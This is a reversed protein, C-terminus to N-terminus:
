FFFTKTSWRVHLWPSSHLQLHSSALILAPLYRQRRNLVDTTLLTELSTTAPSEEQSLCRYIIYRHEEGKLFGLCISNSYNHAMATCLNTIETMDPDTSSLSSLPNPDAWGVRRRHSPTSPPTRCMLSNETDTFRSREPCRLCHVYLSTPNRSQGSRESRSALSSRPKQALQKHNPVSKSSSNEMTQLCIAATRSQGSDELM